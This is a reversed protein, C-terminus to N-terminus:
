ALWREVSDDWLDVVTELPHTLLWGGALVALLLVVWAIGLTRVADRRSRTVEM